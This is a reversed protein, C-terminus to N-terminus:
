KAMVLRRCLRGVTFALVRFIRHDSDRLCCPEALQGSFGVTVLTGAVM